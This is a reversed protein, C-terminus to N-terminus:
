AAAEGLENHKHNSGGLELVDAGEVKWSVKVKEGAVVHTPEVSIESRTIILGIIRLIGGGILGAVMEIVVKRLM